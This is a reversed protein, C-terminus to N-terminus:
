FSQYIVLTVFICVYKKCYSRFLKQARKRRIQNYLSKTFGTGFTFVQARLKFMESEQVSSESLKEWNPLWSGMGSKWPVAGRWGASSQRRLKGEAACCLLHRSFECSISLAQGHPSLWTESCTDLQKVAASVFHPSASSLFMLTPHHIGLEEM